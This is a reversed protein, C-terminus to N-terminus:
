HKQIATENAEMNVTKFLVAAIVEFLEEEMLEEVMLTDQGNTTHGNLVVSTANNLRNFNKSSKAANVM